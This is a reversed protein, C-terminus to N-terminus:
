QERCLNHTGVVIIIKEAWKFIINIALIKTENHSIYFECGVDDVQWVKHVLLYLSVLVSHWNNVNYCICLQM